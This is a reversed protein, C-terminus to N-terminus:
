RGDGGGAVLQDLADDITRAPASTRANGDRRSGEDSLVESADGFLIEGGVGALLQARDRQRVQTEGGHALAVTGDHADEIRLLFAVAPGRRVRDDLDGDV